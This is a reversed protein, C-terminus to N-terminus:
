EIGGLSEFFDHTVVDGWMESLAFCLGGDLLCLVMGLAGNLVSIRDLCLQSALPLHSRGCSLEKGKRSFDGALM